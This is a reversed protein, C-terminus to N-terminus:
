QKYNFHNSLIMQPLSVRASYGKTTKDLALWVENYGKWNQAYERKRWVRAVNVTRDVLM